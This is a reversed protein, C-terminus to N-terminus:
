KKDLDLIELYGPFEDGTRLYPLQQNINENLKLLKEDITQLYHDFEDEKELLCDHHEELSPNSFAHRCWVTEAEARTRVDMKQFVRNYAGILVGLKKVNEELFKVVSREVLPQVTALCTSIVDCLDQLCQTYVQSEDNSTM